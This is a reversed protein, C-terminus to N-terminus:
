NIVLEPMGLIMWGLLVDLDNPNTQAYEQKANTVADGLREGNALRAFVLRALERESNANTLTTAGMVAVAGQDGEMMFRHGMSDENPSVYYANWCGWQTVVTPRGNNALRAADNGTLLGEFSWQNTGSHGFFATLTVGQNIQATLANRAGRAGLDDVYATSVQFNGLYESAVENADDAFNYQQVLDERDAVMLATGAYERNNYDSRKKLLTALQANTRVPLRSIPIDPVNDDDTDVYKADVPAFTINSGTAAYLSPIFSTADENEFQRYDYVDGGVLLVYNTGRNVEAFAIYRQIATPDFVHGGFQAYIQDVDVIDVTGMESSLEEALAELQNGGATGIFDSHSIILYNASGATIDETAVMARLTALKPKASVYYNAVQGSGGFSVICRGRRCISQANTIETLTGDPDERLVLVDLGGSESTFGGIRFKSFRSTFALRNDQAVFKRPYSVEIENVNVVDFRFGRQTPLTLTVFNTGELVSELNMDFSKEQLGSFQEDMLAQGNFAIQMRHDNNGPLDSAGWVNVNMKAQTSGTNGGVAVNDLELQVTDSTPEDLAILRKAYWPDNTDPSTFSYREQPAYKASALYSTAFPVRSPMQAETQNMRSGTQQDGSTLTYINENTYLTDIAKAVFRIRSGVGFTDGGTILIPVVNGQNVLSLSDIPLGALDVGAEALTEYSVEYIGAETTALNTWEVAQQAQAEPVLLALGALLATKIESKIMLTEQSSSSVDDRQRTKMEQMLRETRERQEAELRAKREAAKAEREAREAQWDITRREGMVGVSEGLNFPGHLTEKGNVDIDSLAFVQADIEARFAYDQVEVSDGQGEILSENLRVWQGDVNAYLYFGLNAVETQTAWTFIVEDGQAVARFTGLSIPNTITPMYGFDSTEDRVPDDSVGASDLDVVYGTDDKSTNDTTDTLGNPSDTHEFGNLVNDDDTVVVTYIGDPLNTFEFDGNVNTLTTQILNGNEDRLEITVGAFRGAEELEGNGDTDPWVTGAITNNAESVYGFDQDLDNPASDTLSTVSTSDGTTPTDPDVSNVFGGGGNPLTGADVVVQYETGPNPGTDSTGLGTFLYNGNADTNTTAILIDDGGGIVGDPGPAFLQVTVGEVGEGADPFGSNNQDLFITDGISGDGTGINPDIYGFDQGLDDVPTPDAGASDLDVRSVNPSVPVFGGPNAPDDSDATPDLNVLVNNQDTVVVDYLGDPIGTFLYMGDADTITTAIVNSTGAVPDIAVLSVTVGPLPLENIDSGDGAAGPGNGDEDVDIWLADGISNNQDAPPLYGFDADLNVPADQALVVTTQDDAATSNGDRVDPDGLGSTSSVYGTPLTTIDVDVLYVQDVPLGSFLYKGNADTVTSIPQGPGAGLDIGSPPTLTVTVGAIGPEGPDQVGDDDADIWITDGIAGDGPPSAYGFDATEHFENPDLVIQDSLSDTAGLGDGEDFTQVLGLPLTTVDVGTIFTVAPQLDPFLYEGNPGTTASAVPTTLEAGNIVGDGNTDEFLNVTVNAIGDENADQIGDMDLDLWVFNGLSAPLIFGFDVTMDGNTDFADDQNDGTNNSGTNTEVTNDPEGSVTLTIDPSQV